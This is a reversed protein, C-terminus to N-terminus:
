TATEAKKRAKTASREAVLGFSVSGFNSDVFITIETNLNEECCDSYNM